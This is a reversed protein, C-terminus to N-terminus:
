DCVRWDGDEKVMTMTDETSRSEEGSTMEVRVRATARDGDETLDLLTLKIRLDAVKRLEKEQEERLDPPLEGVTELNRRAKAQKEGVGKIEGRKAVCTLQAAAEFDRSGVADAYSDFVGRPSSDRTLLLVLAVVAGIVLVGGGALVWPLAKKKRSEPAGPMGFPQELQGVEGPQGPLPGPQGFPDSQPFGGSQPGSPRQPWGGQQRPDHPGAQSPHSM